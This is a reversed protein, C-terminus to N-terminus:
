RVSRLTRSPIQPARVPTPEIETTFSHAAYQLASARERHREVTNSDRDGRGRLGGVLTHSVTERQGGPGAQGEAHEITRFAQGERHILNRLAQNKIRDKAVDFRCNLRDMLNQVHIKNKVKLVEGQNRKLVRETDSKVSSLESSFKKFKVKM